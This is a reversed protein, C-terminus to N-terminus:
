PFVLGPYETVSVQPITSGYKANIAQIFYNAAVASGRPCLHVGDTSFLGGTVFTMSLKVGDFVMGTAFNKMNANMDSVALGKQNATQMIIQNYATVAAQLNLQESKQLVFRGPIPYPKLAVPDAVGMGKCKISDTPLNLLFLDEPAMQVWQGATTTIVFPNLGPQWVIEPHGYMTYLLNLGAAQASDLLVGNYPLSKSVTNFFPISTIDPITAVVGRPNKPSSMLTEVAMNFYKAFTDVPTILVDTGSVASLLIDNNGIWLSFFTPEQAVADQMVTTVPSTAFRAFFPNGLQPHGYGPIFLEKVRIGPVGMNNYPGATLPPAFLEQQLKGQDPNDVAFGPKLTAGTQQGQCDYVPMIRLIMKTYFYPGAPTLMFGVGDETGILPQRFEGGGALMFQGAMLNAISYDQASRYLANDTFGATLSNGVAVYRTFDAAGKGAVLEDIKRECSVFLSLAVIIFIIRKM